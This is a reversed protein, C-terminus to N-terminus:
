RGASESKQRQRDAPSPDAPWVGTREPLAGWEPPRSLVISFGVFYRQRALSTLLLESYSQSYVSAGLFPYIRDTLRYSLRLQGSFSEIDEVQIGPNSSGVQTRLELGWRNGLSGELSLMAMEYFNDPLVGSALRAASAATGGLGGLLAIERSIGAAVVFSSWRKEFRAAIRYTNSRSHLLGGSLELSIGRPEFGYQYGLSIGHTSQSRAGTAFPWHFGHKLDQIVFFTYGASVQHQRGLMHSLFIGTATGMQEFRGTFLETERLEPLLLKAVTNLFVPSVKTQPSWSYDVNLSFTNELFQGRPLLFASESVARGVDETQLFSNTADFLLRPTPRHTLRLRAAHDLTNLDNYRKFLQLEPIYGLFFDTRPRASRFSFEPSTILLVDDDFRNQGVQLGRERTASVVLPTNFYFGTQAPAEQQAQMERAAPEQALAQQTSPEQAAATVAFAMMGFVLWRILMKTGRPNSRFRPTRAPGVIGVWGDQPETRM